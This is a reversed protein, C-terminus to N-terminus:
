VTHRSVDPISCNLFSHRRAEQLAPLDDQETRHVASELVTRDNVMSKQLAHQLNISYAILFLLAAALASIGYAAVAESTLRRKAPSPPPQVDKFDDQTLFFDVNRKEQALRAQKRYIRLQELFREATNEGHITIALTEGPFRISADSGLYVGHRYRHTVRIDKLELIPWYTIRDNWTRIFYVPTLILDRKLSSFSWRLIAHANIGMLAAIATTIAGYLVTTETGWLRADAFALLLCFWGCLIAMWLYHRTVSDIPVKLQNEVRGESREQLREQIAAPLSDYSVHGARPVGPKARVSSGESGGAEMESIWRDHRARRQPDSLVDHAENILRMIREADHRNGLNKDPHYRQSLGRYAAKIVEAGAHRAIQLNDYHTRVKKGAM